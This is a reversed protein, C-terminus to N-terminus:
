NGLPTQQHFLTVLKKRINFVLLHIFIIKAQQCTVHSQHLLPFEPNKEGERMTWQLLIQGYFKFGEIQPVFEFFYHKENVLYFLTWGICWVREILKVKREIQFDLGKGEVTAGLYSDFCKEAGKCFTLLWLFINYQVSGSM